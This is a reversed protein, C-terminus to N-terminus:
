LKVGWLHLLLPMLLDKILVGAAGVAITAIWMIRKVQGGVRDVKKDVTWLESRVKSIEEQNAAHNSAMLADAAERGTRAEEGHAALAAKIERIDGRLRKFDDRDDKM